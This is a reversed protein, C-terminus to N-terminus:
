QKSANENIRKTFSEIINWTSRDSDFVSNLGQEEMPPDGLLDDGKKWWIGNKGSPRGTGAFAWFNAGAIIDKKDVSSALANFIITYYKDRSHTSSELSFSQQDRPLGFEEIVLPKGFKRAAAAHKDIYSNTNSVAKDLGKAIATDTFWSWNKPWIHITAYDINNDQHIASFLDMNETGM